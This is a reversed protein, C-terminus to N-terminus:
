LFRILLTWVMESHAHSRRASSCLSLGPSMSAKSYSEGATREKGMRWGQSRVSGSRIDTSLCVPM